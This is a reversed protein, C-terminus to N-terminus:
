CFCVTLIVATTACIWNGGRAWVGTAGAGKGGSRGPGPRDKLEQWLRGISRCVRLMRAWYPAAPWGLPLACVRHASRVRECSSGAGRGVHVWARGTLCLPRGWCFSLRRTAAPGAEAGRAWDQSMKAVAWGGGGLAPATGRPSDGYRRLQGRACRGIARCTRAQREDM